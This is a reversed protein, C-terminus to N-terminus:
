TQQAPLAVCDNGQWTVRVDQGPVLGADEPHHAARVKIEQTETSVLYRNGTGTFTREAVTGKLGAGGDGPVLKVYDPRVMVDVKEGISLGQGKADLVQGDIDLRVKFLAGETGVVSAPFVNTDGVFNAVFLSTPNDYIDQPRGLQEIRGNSVVAIRDSMTMAEEQDHTVFVFTTGVRRQIRKLEDQLQQRLKLDLAGLPEDLLLVSPETVLSRALAVRQRQGGSLQHVPRDEYGALGVMDLVASAKRKAQDLPEKRITLGFTVNEQVNMHPFLALNQLVMGIPRRYTPIRTVDKGDILIRGSTPAEFGAIMRLLTTKGCGSPGLLTLFESGRIELDVGRVAEVKGYKKVVSDVQVEGSSM